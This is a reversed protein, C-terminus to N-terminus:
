VGATATGTLDYVVIGGVNQAKFTQEVWGAIASATGRGGLAGGALFYHIRGAAVDAEFQALTPAPDTGNFGGIAMIPEDAALQVGAASNAGITAAVWKFGSANTKLLTVVAANPAGSNLLGGLGGGGGFFGGGFGPAGGGGPRFGNPPTSGPPTSGGGFGFGFRPRRGSGPNTFVGRGRGPSTFAFGRGPFRSSSPATPGATPIAGSHATSATQLSYATPAAVAVVVLAAGLAAVPARGRVAFRGPLGFVAAGAVGAVLITTRLWPYWDPTRDLLENAWVVTLVLAAVGSLRAFMSSRNQWSWVAGIGVLAGIAPGLVVLYYPHIIGQAFSFVLGTVVLWSGWILVGARRGDTRPLRRFAWLLAGIFVLAAPLLWSIQTGMESGFLRTIGTPGWAGPRGQGGGGVVSGSENGDIRGFGNYGFILNLVSNDTSGGIYPRSSAPWLTVIAVWWGGAVLLAAGAVLLQMFRRRLPAAAALLYVAAFGPVVILAQLTKAMFAFGILVAAGMLWRTSTHELARTLAYASAVLLLTLLADPNNFRFMLVAVPTVALTAGALLGAAPGFRRRVTAYLLGVAAIGELAQPVLISWSSLGFIRTSIDMVWLSAPPKDVTIFNSSDFSGFFFAKWSKDGAEVAAAYFSNAWGSASLGVIYLIAAAGLLGVLAPRVWAPDDTRGRVLARASPARVFSEGTAASV